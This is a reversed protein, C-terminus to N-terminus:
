RKYHYSWITKSEEGAAGALQVVLLTEADADRDGKVM